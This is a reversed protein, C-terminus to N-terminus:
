RTREMAQAMDRYRTLLERDGESIDAIEELLALIESITHADGAQFGSLVALLKPAANRLECILDADQKALGHNGVVAVHDLCPDRIIIKGMGHVCRKGTPSEHWGPRTHIHWRGTNANAELEKLRAVEDILDMTEGM